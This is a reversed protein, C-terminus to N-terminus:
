PQQRHIITCSPLTIIDLPSSIIIIILQLQSLHLLELSTLLRLCWPLLLHPQHVQPSLQLLPFLEM